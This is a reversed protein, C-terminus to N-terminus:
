PLHYLESLRGTRYYELISSFVEPNRDFFYSSQLQREDETLAMHDMALQYLKTDPKTLLTALRTKHLQGGVSIEIVDEKEYLEEQDSVFNSVLKLNSDHFSTM